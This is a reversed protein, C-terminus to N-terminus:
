IFYKLNINGISITRINLFIIFIKLFVSSILDIYLNMKIDLFSKSIEIRKLNIKLNM